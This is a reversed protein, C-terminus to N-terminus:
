RMSSVHSPTFSTSVRLSDAVTDRPLVFTYVHGEIAGIVLGGVTGVALGSILLLGKGMGEDGHNGPGVGLGFGLAGGGLGGFLLGEMAGGGHHSIRITEISRTPIQVTEELKCDVFRTSDDRVHVERAEYEQGSRLRVIADNNGIKRNADTASALEVTSSCGPLSIGAILAFWCTRAM